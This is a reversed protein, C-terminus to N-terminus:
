YVGNYNIKVKRLAEAHEPSVVKAFINEQGQAVANSSLQQGVQSPNVRMTSPISRLLDVGWAFLDSDAGNSLKITNSSSSTALRFVQEVMGLPIGESLLQSKIAARNAEREYQTFRSAEQQTNSLQTQLNANAQSLTAVTSSLTAIAASMKELKDEMDKDKAKEDAPKAAFPNASLTTVNEQQVQTPLIPYDVPAMDANPPYKPVNPGDLTPPKIVGDLQEHGEVVRVANLDMKDENIQSSSLLMSLEELVSAGYTLVEEDTYSSLMFDKPYDTSISLTTALPLNPLYPANTLAVATLLTGINQGSNKSMAGRTFEGSAHRYGSEKIQDVITQNTPIFIGYLVDGEQLLEKLTGRSISGDITPPYKELHEQAGQVHGYTLYPKFGAESNTFNRKMDNFDSQRFSVRGYRPHHWTGLRAVPIKLDPLKDAM